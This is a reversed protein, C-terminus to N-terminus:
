VGAILDIVTDVSERVVEGTDGSLRIVTAGQAAEAATLAKPDGLGWEAGMEFWERNWWEIVGPADLPYADIFRDARIRKPGWEGSRRRSTLTVFRIPQVVATGNGVTRRPRPRWRRGASGMALAERRKM